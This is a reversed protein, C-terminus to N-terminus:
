TTLEKKLIVNEQNVTALATERNMQKVKVDDFQTSVFSSAQKYEQAQAILEEKFKNTEVRIECLIEEKMDIVSKVQSKIELIEEYLLWAWKPAGLWSAENEPSNKRDAKTPPVVDEMGSDSERQRKPISELTVPDSSSRSRNLYQLMAMQETM